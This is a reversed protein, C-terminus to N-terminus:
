HHASAAPCTAWFPWFTECSATSQGNCKIKKLTGMSKLRCKARPPPLLRVDLDPLSHYQDLVLKWDCCGRICILEVPRYTMFGTLPFLTVWPLHFLLIAWSPHQQRWTRHLFRFTYVIFFPIIGAGTLSSKTFAKFAAIRFFLCALFCKTKCIRLPSSLGEGGICRFYM